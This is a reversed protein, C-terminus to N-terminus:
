NGASLFEEHHCDCFLTRNEDNREIVIRDSLASLLSNIEYKDPITFIIMCHHPTVNLYRMIDEKTPMPGQILLSRLSEPYTSRSGFSHDFSNSMITITNYNNSAEGYGMLGSGTISDSELVLMAGYYNSKLTELSLDTLKNSSIRLYEAYPLKALHAVNNDTIQNSHLCISQLSEYRPISMVDQESIEQSEVCLQYPTDFRPCDGIIAEICRQWLPEHPYLELSFTGNHKDVLAEVQSRTKAFVILAASLIIM